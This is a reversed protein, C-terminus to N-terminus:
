QSRSLNPSLTADAALQALESRVAQGIQLTQQLVAAYEDAQSQLEFAQMTSLNQELQSLGLNLQSRGGVQERFIREARLGIVLGDRTLALTELLGSADPSSQSRRHITQLNVLVDVANLVTHYRDIEDLLHMLTQLSRGNRFRYGYWIGLGVLTSVGMSALILTSSAAPSFRIVAFGIPLTFVFLLAAVLGEFLLWGAWALPHELRSFRYAGSFIGGIWRDSVELGSLQEIERASIHLDPVNVDM